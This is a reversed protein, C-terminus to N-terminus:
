KKTSLISKLIQLLRDDYIKRAASKYFSNLNMDTNKEYIHAQLAMELKDLQKVFRGEATKGNEFELWLNLWYSSNPLNSFFKNVAELEKEFKMKETIGDSPTIDGTYVECAEHLLAMEIVKERNLYSPCFLMALIATGFCHDAVSECKNKELGSNLWGQRFVFKLQAFKYFAELKDKWDNATKNQM